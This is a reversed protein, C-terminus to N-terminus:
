RKPLVYGIVTVIIGVIFIGFSISTYRVHRGLVMYSVSLGGIGFLGIVAVIVGIILLIYGLGM